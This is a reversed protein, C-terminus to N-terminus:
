FFQADFANPEHGDGGTCVMVMTIGRAIKSVDIGVVTGQSVKILENLFRVLATNADDHIVDQVVAGFLVGEKFFGEFIRLTRIALPVFPSILFRHTPVDPSAIRPHANVIAAVQGRKARVHRVEVHAVRFDDFVM